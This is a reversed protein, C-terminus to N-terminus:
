LASPALEASDHFLRYDYTAEEGNSIDRVVIDFGCGSDLINANYSHNLYIIGDCPVLYSGDPKTYGYKLVFAKEEEYLLAFSGKSIRVCRQCEFFVITGKPVFEKAFLGKGRDGTERVEFLRAPM